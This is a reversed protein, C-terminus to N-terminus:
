RARLCLCHYDGSAVAIFSSDPEPVDTLFGSGADDNGWAVVSGDEKLGFSIATGAAIAVFDTNPQPINCQGHSNSGWAAISGRLPPSNSPETVHNCSYSILLIFVSAFLTIRM